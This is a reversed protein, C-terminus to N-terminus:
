WSIQDGKTKTQVPQNPDFEFIQRPNTIRVICISEIKDITAVADGLGNTGKQSSWYRVAKQGDKTLCWGLFVTSHGLGSKWSINMFDGPQADQPEIRTGMRSYQVLAFDNGFGDANWHGWFKVHDERRAGDPEQLRMCELRDESIDIFPPQWDPLPSTETVEPIPRSAPEQKLWLNLSEIFASYSAGTCFSTSRPPAVLQTEGLALPYGIPSETPQAKVGTFYGGGDMATKQVRDIGILVLRNFEPADQSFLAAHKTHQAPLDLIRPPLTHWAAVIAIGLLM